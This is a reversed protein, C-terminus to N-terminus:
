ETVFVCRLFCMKSMRDLVSRCERPIDQSNDPPYGQPIGPTDKPTDGPNRPPIWPDGGVIQSNIVLLIFVVVFRLALGHEIVIQIRLQIRVVIGVM